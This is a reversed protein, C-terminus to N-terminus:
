CRRNIQTNLTQCISQFLRGKFGIFPHESGGEIALGGKGGNTATQKLLTESKM